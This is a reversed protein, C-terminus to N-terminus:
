YIRDRYVTESVETGTEKVLYLVSYPVRTGRREEKEGFVSVDDGGSDEGGM